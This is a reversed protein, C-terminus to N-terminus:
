GDPHLQAAQEIPSISHSFGELTDGHLLGYLPSSEDAASAGLSGFAEALNVERSKVFQWVEELPIGFEFLGVELAADALRQQDAGSLESMQVTGGKTLRGAVVQGLAVVSDVDRRDKQRQRQAMLERAHVSGPTLRETAELVVEGAITAVFGLASRFGKKIGIAPLQDRRRELTAQAM